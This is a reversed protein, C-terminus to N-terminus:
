ALNASFCNGFPDCSDDSRSVVGVKIQFLHVMPIGHFQGGAFGAAHQHLWISTGNVVTLLCGSQQGTLVEM